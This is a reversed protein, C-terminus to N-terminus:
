PACWNGGANRDVLNDESAVPVAALVGEARGDVVTNSTFTEPAAGARFVIGALRNGRIENREIRARGGDGVVVGGSRGNYIRNGELLPCGGDAVEIGTGRNGYVDNESVTGGGGSDFWMGPGYGDHVRNGKVTPHADSTM